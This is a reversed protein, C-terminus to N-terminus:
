LTFIKGVPMGGVLIQSVPILRTACGDINPATDHAATSNAFHRTSYHLLDYVGDRMGM